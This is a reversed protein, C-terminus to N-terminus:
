ILLAIIIAFVLIFVLSVCGLSANGCGSNDPNIKKKPDKELSDHISQNLKQGLPAVIFWWIAFVIVFLIIAGFEV